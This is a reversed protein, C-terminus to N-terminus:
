ALGGMVYRDLTAYVTVLPDIPARQVQEVGDFTPTGNATNRRLWLKSGVELVAGTLVREPVESEGVYAAVLESAEDYVPGLQDLYQGSDDGIYAALAAAGVSDQPNTDTAM